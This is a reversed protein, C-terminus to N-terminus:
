ISWKLIVTSSDKDNNINNSEMLKSVFSMFSEISITLAIRWAM